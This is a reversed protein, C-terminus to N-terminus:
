CLIWVSLLPLLSAMAPIVIFDNSVGSSVLVGGSTFTSTTRRPSVVIARRVNWGPHRQHLVHLRGDARGRALCSVSARDDASGHMDHVVNMRSSIQSFVVVLLVVVPGVVMITLKSRIGMRASTNMKTEETGGGHQRQAPQKPRRM